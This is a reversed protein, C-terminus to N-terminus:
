GITVVGDATTMAAVLEPMKGVGGVKLRGALKLYDLCTGCSFVPVADEVLLFLDDISDSGECALRVGDNALFVLSPKAEARALSYMFNRMLARGLEDNAAGIRDSTIFVVKSV